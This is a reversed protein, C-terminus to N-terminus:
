AGSRKDHEQARHKKCQNQLSVQPAYGSNNQGIFRVSAAAPHACVNASNHLLGRKGGYLTLVFKSAPADPLAEFSARMGGRVQDVRGDLNFELGDGALAVVLDPILHGFGSVLYVPGELPESLLPTFARAHGYISGQPCDHALFRARACASVIHEQALFEAHPLGVVADAINADGPRETLTARLAPYANHKTSGLLKLALKPKFGLSSCNSVHYPNTVAATIDKPNAFPPSSGTLTSISSFPECSTPNLTFQPRSIYVRIDRLHLPIGGVIHPIPDSAASDISVQASIPNVKIASRVIIVGLDFPGVLASDVATISLPAGHYPGTLYLKGPAYTLVGGLGYGTVTHGIESAAPCSPREQEAIGTNAKAAALDAEPCYPIGAIKGTLGPPLLASYSTIEQETDGRTMHLYFPSYSGANSNVSGNEAGPHFPAAGPAPCPGGGVGASIAFQFNQHEVAPQIAALTQWPTLEVATTYPDNESTSPNADCSAATALPARQGERFHIKLNTYPLQPMGEFTAVLQGTALNPILKGAVKVFIGNPARAVLYIAILSNFPNNHPQALYMSGNIIQEFSTTEEIVLPSQVTLTGIKSQNPCGAGPASTPTEAAFQAPTCVGLGAGVSPNITFGDPLAVVAKQVQSGSIGGPETLGEQHQSLNFDFGTASSARNSTPGSFSTTAFNIRDCRTLAPSVSSDDVFSGPAQWSDAAVNFVLPAACSTPLTLFAEPRNTKPPGVSCKAWPFGPETEKLCNGREPDHSVGWPTGWLTVKVGDIALGQPFNQAELNLGYEGGTNRVQGGFAIPEGFPATGLEAAVGPPPTLNFLGFSRESGGLLSTRMTVTGVQSKDPCSEGSLSTEFPSSRPTNFQALTCHGLASPNGILGQPLEFRMDRLDAAPFPVGPQGPSEPGESFNVAGTLAYPHTGAETAASGDHETAAFDFGEAGPLFGFEAGSALAQAPVAALCLLAILITARLLRVAPRAQPTEKQPPAEQRVQRAQPRLRVQLSCGPLPRAPQRPRPHPHRRHPRRTPLAAASLRRRRLSDAPLSGPLWRQRPRRLHRRLRSRDRGALLLHPLLRRRRIRLRRHLLRRRRRHRLLDPQHLGRAECLQRDGAGGVPLRRRGQQHRARGARRRLRLLRPQRTASLVRPKYSDTLIQGPALAAKTGNAYAGPITSPGIPREDTPNCSLCALGGGTANTSSSRPADPSNAPSWSVATAPNPRTNDYGTLRGQSLFLLRNGDASVRATGTTPPWDSEQAAAGPAVQTVGTGEQWRYVGPSTPPLLISNGNTQYYVSFGDASAGLVGTVGETPGLRTATNTTASYRYLTSRGPKRRRHLLRGRREPHRDPVRGRRRTRAAGGGRRAALAGRRRRLLCTLRRRLRRRGPRGARGRAGVNVLTLAGGSWEYLNPEALTAAKPALCKPPTLPSSPAPPSSSTPSTPPPALSPRPRVGLLYALAPRQESRQAAGPLQRPTTACTTTRTAPPAGSGPLPPNAVPCGTGEGRCHVGGLLLGRALDPSFLQYPVGNPDNGYSGSLVPTTINETAWGGASRRSIYQSGQPAGQAGQAGYGGFSSASTYTIAGNGSAAAQLVGGGHNQGFGQIAGGNKDPPSVLEWGRADPLKFAAGIEQTTFTQPSSTTTGEGTATLRYHYTTNAKLASVHKAVTVFGSGSGPSPECSALAAGTFGNKQFVADTVYEFRCTTSAGEPNVEGHFSASGASVETTWIEGLAPEAAAAAAPAMAISLLIAGLALPLRLSCRM